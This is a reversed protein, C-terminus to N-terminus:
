AHRVQRKETPWRTSVALRLSAPHHGRGERAGDRTAATRCRPQNYRKREERPVCTAILSLLMGFVVEPLTWRRLVRVSSSSPPRSTTRSSESAEGVVEEAAARVGQVAARDAARRGRPCASPDESAVGIGDGGPPVGVIPVPRGPLSPLRRGTDADDAAAAEPDPPPSCAAAAAAEFEFTAFVPM